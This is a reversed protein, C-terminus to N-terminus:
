KCKGKYNENHECLFSLTEKYRSSNRIISSYKEYESNFSEGNEMLHLFHRNKFGTIEPENLIRVQKTIEGEVWDNSMSKDLVSSLVQIKGPADYYARNNTGVRDGMIMGSIFSIIVLIIISFAKM